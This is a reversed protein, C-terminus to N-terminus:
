RRWPRGSSFVPSADVVTLGGRRVAVFYPNRIPGRVSASLRAFEAARAELLGGQDCTVTVAAVGNVASKPATITVTVRHGDLRLMMEIVRKLMRAADLLSRGQTFAGIAPVHATWLARKATTIRGVLPARSKVKETM